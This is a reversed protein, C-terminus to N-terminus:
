YHGRITAYLQNLPNIFPNITFRDRLGPFAEDDCHLFRDAYLQSFGAETAAHLIEINYSGYPFAMAQVPKGTIREIYTKAKAADEKVQSATMGALDDHHLSHCGVTAWKSQALATLQSENMQLWYEQESQRCYRKLQTIMEKKAAFPSRRLIDSLCEGGATRYRGDGGKAYSIDNIRITAPGYRYAAALVDNWLVDYGVARAGTVFFIAPVEYKELLPLVTTYNNAFGDDFSLCLNFRETSFRGNFYDDPNLLHCYKKYLRLQKEFVRETIFLTNFRQPDRNCVGHYVLMRHGRAARFGSAASGTIGAWDNGLGKLRSRVRQITHYYGSM